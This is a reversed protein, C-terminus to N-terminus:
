FSFINAFNRLLSESKSNINFSKRLNPALKYNKYVDQEYGSAGIHLSIQLHFEIKIFQFKSIFKFSAVTSFNVVVLEYSVNFM